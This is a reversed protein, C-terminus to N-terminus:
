AVRASSLSSRRRNNRLTPSKAAMPTPNARNSTSIRDCISRNPGGRAFAVGVGPAARVEGVDSADGVNAEPIAGVPVWAGKAPLVEMGVWVAMGDVGKAATLTVAEGKGPPAAEDARKGVTVGELVGKGLGLGSGVWAGDAVGVSRGLGAM